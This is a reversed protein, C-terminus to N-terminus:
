ALMVGSAALSVRALRPREGLLEGAAAFCPFAALVYRGMSVFDNTTITPMALAVISYIGYGWGFRRVVRPVLRWIVVPAVFNLIIAEPLYGVPHTLHFWADWKIWTQWGAGKHWAALASSFVTPDGFRFWLYGLYAALGLVSLLVGTDRLRIREFPRRPSW